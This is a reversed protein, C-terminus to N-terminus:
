WFGKNRIQTLKLESLSDQARDTPIPSKDGIDTFIIPDVRSETLRIGTNRWRPILLINVERRRAPCLLSQMRSVLPQLVM